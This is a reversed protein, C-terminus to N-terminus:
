NRYWMINPEEGKSPVVDEPMFEESQTLDEYVPAPLLSAEARRLAQDLYMMAFDVEKNHVVDEDESSVTNLRERRSYYDLIPPSQYPGSRVATTSIRKRYTASHAWDLTLPLGGRCCPHDGVTLSHERIEIHTSFCVRPSAPIVSKPSPPANLSDRKCPIEQETDDSDWCEDSSESNEDLFLSHRTQQVPMSRMEQAFLDDVDDNFWSGCLQQHIPEHAQVQLLTEATAASPPIM